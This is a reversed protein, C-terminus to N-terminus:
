PQAEERFKRVAKLARLYRGENVAPTCPDNDVALLNYVTTLSARLREIEARLQKVDAELQANRLKTEQLEGTLAVGAKFYRAATAIEARLHEIEALLAPIDTRAHAIFDALSKESVVCLLVYGILGARRIVDWGANEGHMWVEFPGPTAADCRARIAALQEDTM